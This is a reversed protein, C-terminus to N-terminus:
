EQFSDIGKWDLCSNQRDDDSVRRLRDKEQFLVTLDNRKKKLAPNALGGGIKGKGYAWQVTLIRTNGINGLLFNM